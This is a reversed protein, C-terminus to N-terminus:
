KYGLKKSYLTASVLQIKNSEKLRNFETIDIPGKLNSIKILSDKPTDILKTEITKDIAWYYVADNIKNIVLIYNDNFGVSEVQKIIPISTQMRDNTPGSAFDISNFTPDVIYYMNGGLDIDGYFDATSCSTLLITLFFLLKKMSINKDQPRRRNHRSVNQPRAWHPKHFV